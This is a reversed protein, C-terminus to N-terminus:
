ARWCRAPRKTTTWTRRPPPAPRARIATMADRRTPLATARLRALRTSRSAVRVSDHRGPVSTTSIARAAHAALLMPTTRDSSCRNAVASSTSSPWFTPSRARAPEIAVGPDGCVGTSRTVSPAPSNSLHRSYRRSSRSRRVADNAEPTPTSRDPTATGPLPSRECAVNDSRGWTSWTHRPLWEHARLSARHSARSSAVRGTDGRSDRPHRDRGAVALHWWADRNGGM